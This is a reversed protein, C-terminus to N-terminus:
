FFRLGGERGAFVQWGERRGSKCNSGARATSWYHFKFRVQVSIDRPNAYHTGAFANEFGTLVIEDGGCVCLTRRTCIFRSCSTLFDPPQSKFFWMEQDNM